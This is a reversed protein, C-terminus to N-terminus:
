LGAPLQYATTQSVATRKDVNIIHPVNVNNYQTNALIVTVKKSFKGSALLTRIQKDLNNIAGVQAKFEPTGAKGQQALVAASNSLAVQAGLYSTLTSENLTAKKKIGMMSKAADAATTPTTATTTDTLAAISGTNDSTKYKPGDWWSGGQGWQDKVSKVPGRKDTGLLMNIQDPTLHSMSPHNELFNKTNVNHYNPTLPRNKRLAARIYSPNPVQGEVPLGRARRVKEKWSALSNNEARIIWEFIKLMWTVATENYTDAGYVDDAIAQTMAHGIETNALSVAKTFGWWAGAIGGALALLPVTLAGLGGTVLTIFGGVLGGVWAGIKMGVFGGAAAAALIVTIRKMERFLKARAAQVKPSNPNFESIAKGRLHTKTGKIAAMEPVYVNQHYIGFQELALGVMAIVGVIKGGVKFKTSGIMKEFKVAGVQGIHIWKKPFNVVAKGAQWAKHGAASWPGKTPGTKSPGTSGGGFRSVGSGRAAGEPSGLGGFGRSGSMLKDLYPTQGTHPRAPPPASTGGGMSPIRMGGMGGPSMRRAGAQLRRVTRQRDMRSLVEGLTTRIGGVARMTIAFRARSINAAHKALAVGQGALNRASTIKSELSARMLRRLTAPDRAASRNIREQNPNLGRKFDERARRNRADELIRNRNRLRDEKLNRGQRRFRELEGASAARAQQAKTIRDRAIQDRLAKAATSQRGREEIGVEGRLRGERGGVRKADRTGTRTKKDAQTREHVTSSGFGKSAPIGAIRGVFQRFRTVRPNSVRKTTSPKTTKGPKVRSYNKLANKTSMSLTAFFGTMDEFLAALRDFVNQIAQFISPLNEILKPLMALGLAGLLLPMLGKLWDWFSKQPKGPEGTGGGITSLAEILRRHRQEEEFAAERQASAPDNQILLGKIAVVEKHVKALLKGTPGVISTENIVEDGGSGGKKGGGKFGSMFLRKGAVAAALTPALGTSMTGVRVGGALAAAGAVGGIVRATGKTAGWAFRGATRFM